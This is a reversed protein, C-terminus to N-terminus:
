LHSLTALEPDPMAPTQAVTPALKRRLQNTLGVVAFEFNIALFFQDLPFLLM